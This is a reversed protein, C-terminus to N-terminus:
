YGEFHSQFDELQHVHSSSRDFASETADDSCLTLMSFHTFKKYCLDLTFETFNTVINRPCM